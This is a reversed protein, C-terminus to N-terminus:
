LLEGEHGLSGYGYGDYAGYGGHGGYGYGLGFLGRKDQKKDGEEAKKPETEKKAEESAALALSVVLLFCASV